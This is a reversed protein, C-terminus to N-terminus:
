AREVIVRESKRHMAKPSTPDHRPDVLRPTSSKTESLQKAELGRRQLPGLLARQQRSVSIQRAISVEVPDQPVKELTTVSSGPAVELGPSPPLSRNDDRSPFSRPTAAELPPHSSNWASPAKWKREQPTVEVQFYENENLSPPRDVSARAGISLQSLSRRHFKSILQPREAVEEAAPIEDIRGGQLTSEAIHRTGRRELSTGSTKFSPRTPSPMMAPSTNSRARSFPELGRGGSRPSQNRPSSSSDGLPRPPERLALDPTNPEREQIAKLRDQTAQRRALLSSATKHQLLHGFMISYRELTIDPIEVDLLPENLNPASPSFGDDRATDRTMNTRATSDKAPPNPAFGENRPVKARDRLMPETQSRAISRHPSPTAAEGGRPYMQAHATTSTSRGLPSYTSPSAIPGDRMPSSNGKGKRSRSRGFIGWKRSKAKPSTEENSTIQADPSGATVTTTFQPRWATMAYDPPHTPSGLAMGIAIIGTEPAEDTSAVRSDHAQDPATTSEVSSRDTRIPRHYSRYNDKKKLKVASPLGGPIEKPNPEPSGPGGDIDSAPSKRLNEAPSPVAGPPSAM